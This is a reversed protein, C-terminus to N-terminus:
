LEARRAEIAELRREVAAEVEPRREIREALRPRHHGIWALAAQRDVRCDFGVFGIVEGRASAAIVQDLLARLEPENPALAEAMTWAPHGGSFDRKALEMLDQEEAAAFYPEADFEVALQKDHSRAVAPIV